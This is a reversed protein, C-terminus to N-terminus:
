AGGGDGKTKIQDFRWQREACDLRNVVTWLADALGRDLRRRDAWEMTATWPIPGDPHRCSILDRYAAFFFDAGFPLAPKDHYWHDDPLRRGKKRASEVSFGDREYRLEWL